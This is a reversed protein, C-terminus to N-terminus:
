FWGYVRGILLPAFFLILMGLGLLGGRRLDFDAGIKAWPVHFVLRGLSIEFALMAVLWLTGIALADGSTRPAIWPLMVWTIGLILLSGTGVAIQRARHDGVRRNLLRIRLIGHVVEAMAIVIWVLLARMLMPSISAAPCFSDLM